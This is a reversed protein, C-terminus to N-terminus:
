PTVEPQINGTFIFTQNTQDLYWRKNQTGSVTFWDDFLSYGNLISQGSSPFEWRVPLDIAWPLNNASRYHRNSSPNSTDNDRGYLTADVLETGPRDPLHIEHGTDFTRYLFPDYPPLGQATQPSDFKLHLKGKKSPKIGCREESNYFFCDANDPPLLDKTNTVLNIVVDNQGSVQSVAEKEEGQWQWWSILEGNNDFHVVSSSSVNDLHWAFGNDFAAGRAAFEIDIEVELLQGSPSLHEATQYYVVLDNLDYDAKKPWNDEWALTASGNQSPYYRVFAKNPDNPFQDNSDVVGDGDSDNPTAIDFITTLDVADFPTARIAIILDNFDHDCGSRERQIDEFGLIILEDSISKLSIVHGNLQNANEPESNLGKHSYFIWDEDKNKNVESGTWGNSVLTFGLENGASIQGLFISDGHSLAPSRRSGEFSTNPFIITENVENRKIPLSSSSHLYYALSNRYGAGEHLFIVEVDADKQFKLGSSDFKGVYDPNTLRVDRREPLSTALSELIGEPLTNAVNTINNPRGNSNYESFYSWDIQNNHNLSYGSLLFSSCLLLYPYTKM